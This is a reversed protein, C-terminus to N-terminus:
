NLTFKLSKPKGALSIRCTASILQRILEFARRLIAAAAAYDHLSEYADVLATLTRSNPNCDAV